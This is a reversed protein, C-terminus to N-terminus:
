RGVDMTTTMMVRCVQYTVDYIINKKLNNGFLAPLRIIYPKVFNTKIFDEFLFRNKGYTHNKEYDIDSKENLEIGTNHYVDITSILIVNEAKITKFIDKIDNIISIDEEPHKNSYWKTSPICSIIITNFTKNKANEINKSNYLYEFNYFTLLTSGVLGTYGFLANNSSNSLLKNEFM